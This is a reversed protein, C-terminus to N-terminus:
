SVKQIFYIAYYPPRNDINESTITVSSGPHGHAADSGATGTTLGTYELTSLVYTTDGGSTWSGGSCSSIYRDDYPHYHSPMEDITVSHTAIEVSGAGPTVSAEGGTEGVEYSSGAGVVFRDRLDRTGNGGNCIAWGDPINADTDYWAMIAGVPLAVGILDAAHQGDVTDADLGAPLTDAGELHYFKADAEAETYYLDDHNHADLYSKAEDYQIDAHALNRASILTESTWVMATYSM